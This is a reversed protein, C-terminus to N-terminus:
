VDYREKKINLSVGDLSAIQALETETLNKLFICYENPYGGVFEMKPMAIQQPDTIWLCPEGTAWFRTLILLQGNYIVKRDMRMGGTVEEVNKCNARSEKGNKYLDAFSGGANKKSDSFTKGYIPVSITLCIHLIAKGPFFHFIVIGFRVLSSEMTFKLPMPFPKWPKIFREPYSQEVIHAFPEKFVPEIKPYEAINLLGDYTVATHDIQIHTLKSIAAAQLLGNDDLGTHNRTLLDMKCQGMVSLSNETIKHNGDLLLYGLKPLKTMTMRGKRYRIESMEVFCTQKGGIEFALKM